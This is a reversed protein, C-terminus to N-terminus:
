GFPEREKIRIINDVTDKYVRVFDLQIRKIYKSCIEREREKERKRERESVRERFWCWGTHFEVIMSVSVKRISQLFLYLSSSSSPPERVCVGSIFIVSVIMMRFFTEFLLLFDGDCVRERVVAAVFFFFFWVCLLIVCVIAFLKQWENEWFIEFDFDSLSLSLFLSLSLNKKSFKMVSKFFDDLIWKVFMDFDSNDGRSRWARTVTNLTRTMTTTTREKKFFFNSLFKGCFVRYLVRCFGQLKHCFGKMYWYCFMIVEFNSTHHAHQKLVIKQRRPFSDHGEEQKTM